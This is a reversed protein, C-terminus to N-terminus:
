LALRRYLGERAHPRTEASRPGEVARALSGDRPPVLRPESRAPVPRVPERRLQIPARQGDAKITSPCALPVEKPHDAASSSTSLSRGEDFSTVAECCDAESGAACAPEAVEDHGRPPTHTHTTLCLSTQERPLLLVNARVKRM